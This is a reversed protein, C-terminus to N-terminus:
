SSGTSFLMKKCRASWQQSLALTVVAWVTAPKVVPNFTEDYDVGPRQTFGCLVWRAKYNDLSVDAHFKHRFIWKDTVVNAFFIEHTRKRSLLLNKRWLPRGSPIFLLAAIHRRMSSLSEIHYCAPQRFGLTGRPAM